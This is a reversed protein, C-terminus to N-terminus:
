PSEGKEVLVVAAALIEPLLSQDEKLFRLVFKGNIFISPISYIGPRVGLRLAPFQKGAAVDARINAAVADSDMAALLEDADLDLETAALRIRIENLPDTNEMLWAHMKWFAINGGLQAAAEALKAATCADPHRQTSINPNCDSNFPYHRFTYRVDERTNVFTRILDDADATHPEEYDGWLVIDITPDDAGMRRPAEDAPMDRVPQDRWDAVYKDAALPPRDVAATKAPPNTAAVEEVTRILANPVHWGRLEVGNIFIMPTFHLGLRKAEHCDAIVRNLTEESQIVELFNGPEYGCSRVGNLLQESSTFVGRRKFLWQHMKWFGEAGWLIGAAEAARSAWCANPQPEQERKPMYPNCESNMPFHKISIAVDDRQEMLKVVQQEIRYCDRCQYSTFMVIRIPAKEPGWRYRGEFPDPDAVRSVPAVGSPETTTGGDNTAVATDEGAPEGENEQQAAKSIMEQVAQGREEEGLEIVRAQVQAQWIGVALTVAVFGATLGGWARAPRQAPRRSAEMLGWFAFNGVHAAICYPCFMWKQVIIVMFFVSGLAGLRALYRLTTPLAGRTLLWAVFMAVFYALGLNAVPWEFGGVRIAGWFSESAQQCPGGEGCGPLTLGGVHEVVLLLSMLAAFALAVAGLVVLAPSGGRNPGHAHAVTEPQPKATRKSTGQGRKTRQRSM